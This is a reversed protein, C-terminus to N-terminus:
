GELIGPYRKLDEILILILGVLMMTLYLHHATFNKGISEILNIVGVLFLSSGLILQVLVSSQYSLQKFEVVELALIAIGSLLIIGMDDGKAAMAGTLLLVIGIYMLLNKSLPNRNAM